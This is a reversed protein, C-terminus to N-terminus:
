ASFCGAPARSSPCRECRIAYEGIATKGASTHAAVLVNERRELCMVAERQFSDLTFEYVKAPAPLAEDQFSVPAADAVGPEVKVHTCAHLRPAPGLATHAASSPIPATTGLATAPPAPPEAPALVRESHNSTNANDLAPGRVDSDTPASVVAIRAVVAAIEVHDDAINCDADLAESASRKLSM